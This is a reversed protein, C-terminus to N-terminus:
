TTAGSARCAAHQSKCEGAKFVPMKITTAATLASNPSVEKNAASM